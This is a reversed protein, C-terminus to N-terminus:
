AKIEKKYGRRIISHWNDLEEHRKIKEEEFDIMIMKYLFAM